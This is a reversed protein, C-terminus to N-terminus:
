TEPQGGGGEGEGGCAEPLGPQDTGVGAFHHDGYDYAPIGAFEEPPTPFASQGAPDTTTPPPADLEFWDATMVDVYGSSASLQLTMTQFWLGTVSVVMAGKALQTPTSGAPAKVVALFPFTGALTFFAM